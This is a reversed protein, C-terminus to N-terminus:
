RSTQNISVLIIISVDAQLKEKEMVGDVARRKEEIHQKQLATIRKEKKEIEGEQKEIQRRYKKMETSLRMIENDLQTVVSFVCVAM